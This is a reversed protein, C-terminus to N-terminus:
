SNANLLRMGGMRKEQNPGRILNCRRQSREWSAGFLVKEPSLEHQILPSTTRWPASLYLVQVVSFVNCVPFQNVITRTWLHRWMCQWPNMTSCNDELGQLTILSCDSPSLSYGASCAEWLCTGWNEWLLPFLDWIHLHWSHPFLCLLCVTGRLQLKKDEKEGFNLKTFLLQTWYLGDRCKLLIQTATGQGTHAHTRTHTSM